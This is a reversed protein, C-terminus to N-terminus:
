ATQGNVTDLDVTTHASNSSRFRSAGVIGNQFDIYRSFRSAQIKSRCTRGHTYQFRIRVPRTHDARSPQVNGRLSLPPERTESGFPTDSPSRTRDLLPANASSDDPARRRRMAAPPCRSPDDRSAPRPQSRGARRRAGPDRVVTLARSPACFAVRCLMRLPSARNDFHSCFWASREVIESNMRFMHGGARALAASQRKRTWHGGGYRARMPVTSSTWSPSRYMGASMVRCTRCRASKPHTMHPEGNTSYWWMSGHDTTLCCWTPFM